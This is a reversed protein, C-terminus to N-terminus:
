AIASKIVLTCWAIPHGESKIAIELPWYLSCWLHSCFLFELKVEISMKKRRLKFALDFSDPVHSVLSNLRPLRIIHFLGLVFM